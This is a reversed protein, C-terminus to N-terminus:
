YACFNGTKACLLHAFIEATRLFRSSLPLCIERLSKLVENLVKYMGIKPSLGMEFQRTGMLYWPRKFRQVPPPVWNGPFRDLKRVANQGSSMGFSQSIGLSERSTCLFVESSPNRHCIELDQHFRLWSFGGSAALIGFKRKQHFNCWWFVSPCTDSNDYVKDARSAKKM